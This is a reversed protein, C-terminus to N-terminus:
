VNRFGLARAESQVQERYDRNHWNSALEAKAEVMTEKIPKGKWDQTNKMTENGVTGCGHAKTTREFRSKSDMVEKTIPHKMADMRDGIVHVKPNNEVEGIEIFETKGTEQNERCIWRKAPRVM